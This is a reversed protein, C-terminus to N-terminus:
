RTACAQGHFIRIGNPRMTYGVAWIQSGYRGVKLWREEGNKTAAPGVISEPDNWIERAELFDIGRTDKTWRSKEIDYGEDFM